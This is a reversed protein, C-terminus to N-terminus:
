SQHFSAANSFAKMPVAVDNADSGGLAGQEILCVSAGFSRAAEAARLGATGGGIVLVDYSHKSLMNKNLFRKRKKGCGTTEM